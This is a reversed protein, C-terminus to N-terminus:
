ETRLFSFYLDGSNVTNNVVTPYAQATGSIYKYGNIKINGVTVPYTAAAGDTRKRNYWDNTNMTIAYVKDKVLDIDAIDQLIVTGASNVVITETLLKTGAAKDWVTVRLTTNIAPLKVFIKTIKGKATPTFESGLEYNVNDIIIQTTQDFGTTTLYSSFYNEEGYTVPTIVVPQVQAPAPDSKSCSAVSILTAVFLVAFVNKTKILNNVNFNKILKKM